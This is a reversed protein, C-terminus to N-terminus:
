IASSPYLLCVEPYEETIGLTECIKQSAIHRAHKWSRSEGVGHVGNFTANCRWVGTSVWEKIYEPQTGSINAYEYLMSTYRHLSPETRLPLPSLLGGQVPLSPSLVADDPLPRETNIATDTTHLPQQLLPGGQVPLSPSLVADDPLPRETNIATDTTHLPQQL